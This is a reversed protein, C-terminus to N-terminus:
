TRLACTKWSPWVMSPRSRTLRRTAFTPAGTACESTSAVSPLSPAVAVLAAKKQRALRRQLHRLHRKEGPRLGVGTFFEGDSTAVPVAVGRDIGVAPLGNPALEALHDEVCFSIYWRPGDRKITVNRVEGGLDRSCRFRVTGLKPLRVEGWRRNLRRM